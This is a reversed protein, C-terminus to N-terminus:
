DAKPQNGPGSLRNMLSTIMDVASAMATLADLNADIEAKIKPDLGEEMLKLTRESAAQLCTGFDKPADPSPKSMEMSMAAVLLVDLTLASFMDIYSVDDVPRLYQVVKGAFRGTLLLAMNQLILNEHTSPADFDPMPYTGTEMPDRSNEM